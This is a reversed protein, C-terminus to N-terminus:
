GNTAGEGDSINQAYIAMGIARDWVDTEEDFGEAMMVAALDETVARVEGAAEDVFQESAAARLRETMDLQEFRVKKDVSAAKLLPMQEAEWEEWFKIRARAIAASDEELEFGLFDFGELMCACGTTGSGTFPDVVVGGPPTIIRVLWSMLAISKVTPHTNKAGGTRGAGARPNSLGKSGDKRDTAQGGTSAEFAALGADRETRSPKAEYRFTAFFRSAGGMDKYQNLSTAQQDNGFTGGYRSTKAPDGHPKGTGSQRDLEAVPCGIACNWLVVSEDGYLPGSPKNDGAEAGTDVFGAPRSGQSGERRDGRLRGTGVPECDPGHSLILNAPWRGGEISEVDHGTRAWTGSRDERGDETRPYPAQSGRKTAGNTGVRGADVNLVGTGYLLVNHAVTKELPKRALIWHETSPKLATGYGDWLAAEPTMIQSEPVHIFKKANKGKGKHGPCAEGNDLHKCQGKKKETDVAVRKFGFHADIAKGAELSKPFGSGFHHHIVDRVEFQADEIATATWHSTRPLAWVLMHGGPKLVRYCQSMITFLWDIWVDRGGKNSDWEKGMFSIGSPPDQVISDICEDPLAPLGFRRDMNPATIVNWTMRTKRQPQEGIWIAEHSVKGGGKSENAKIKRWPKFPLWTAGVNECAIVTGPRSQCWTSLATYDISSHTYHKGAKSYPPDIFWTADVNPASTYDGEILNWHRIQDLQSAIRERIKSGWWGSPPDRPNEGRLSKRMNSSPSRKPQASGKNLWWGILLKAEECVSLDDITQDLGIDPLALIEKSSVGILYRWTAVIKIDLDVLWVKRDPYRLSYGASGAFPEIITGHNPPPYFRAARWKGGYFTFFPKLATTM